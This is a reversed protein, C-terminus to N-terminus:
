FFGATGFSWCAGCDGQDKPSTVKNLIRWDFTVPNNSAKM